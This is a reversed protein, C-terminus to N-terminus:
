LSQRRGKLIEWPMSYREDLPIRWPSRARRFMRSVLASMTLIESKPSALSNDRGEEEEEVVYVSMPSEVPDDHAEEDDMIAPFGCGMPQSAGSHKWDMSFQELWLSTQAKPIVSQSINVM